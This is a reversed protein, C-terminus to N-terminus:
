FSTERQKWIEQQASTVHCCERPCKKRFGPSPITGKFFIAKAVPPCSLSIFGCGLVLREDPGNHSELIDTRSDVTPFGCEQKFYTETM